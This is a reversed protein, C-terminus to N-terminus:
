QEPLVQNSDYYILNVIKIFDPESLTFSCQIRNVNEILFM